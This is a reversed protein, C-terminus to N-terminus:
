RVLSRVRAQLAALFQQHRTVVAEGKYGTPWLARPLLPDGGFAEAYAEREVRALRSVAALDGARTAAAPSVVLHKLYRDHDRGIEAFDWASAVVEPHRCLFLRSAEFGCFCEPIGQAEVISANASILVPHKTMYDKIFM